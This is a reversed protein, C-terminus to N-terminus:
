YARLCHSTWKGRASTHILILLSAPIRHSPMIRNTQGARRNIHHTCPVGMARFASPSIVNVPHSSMWKFDVEWWFDISCTFPNANLVLTSWVTILNFLYVLKKWHEHTCEMAKRFSGRFNVFRQSMLKFVQQLRDLAEPRSWSVVMIYATFDPALSWSGCGKHTHSLSFQTAKHM